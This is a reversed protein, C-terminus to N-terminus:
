ESEEKHLKQSDKLAHGTHSAHAMKSAGYKKRGISAAVAGPNSVGKHALKSKLADFGIHKEDLPKLHSALDTEEANYMRSAVKRAQDHRKMRHTLTHIEKNDVTTPSPKGDKRDKRRREFEKGVAGRMLKFYSESRDGHYVAAQHLGVKTHKEDLPEVEEAVKVLRPWYKDNIKYQKDMMKKGPTGYFGNRSNRHHIAAVATEKDKKTGFVKALLSTNESHKNEDENERYKRMINKAHSEDIGGVFPSENEDIGIRYKMFTDLARRMFSPKKKGNPPAGEELEGNFLNKAVEERKQDIMYSVLDRMKDDFNQSFELPAKDIALDVLTKNDTDSV